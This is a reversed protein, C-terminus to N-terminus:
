LGDKKLTFDHVTINLDRKGTEGDLAMDLILDAEDLSLKITGTNYHYNKFSEVLIDLPQHSGRAMNELFRIDRVELTGGSPMMAFDGNLITFRAGRGKVILQGGMLGSMQFKEELEFDHVFEQLDLNRFKLHALYSPNLDIKLVADGFIAGGFARATLDDLVVEHGDLAAGSQIHHVKIKDRQIKEISLRGSREKQNLTLVGNDLLLGQGELSIIELRASNVAMKKLNLEASVQADLKFDRARVDLIAQSLVLERIAFAGGSDSDLDVLQKFATISKGPQNFTFVIEAVTVRAIHRQLLEAPRYHISIEKIRLDYVADKKIRIDRLSIRNLPAVDCGGIAVIGDVFTERFQKQAISLIVPRLFLAFAVALLLVFILFRIIWKM